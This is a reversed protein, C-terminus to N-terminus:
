RVPYPPVAPINNKWNKLDLLILEIAKDLQQDIGSFELAPDNDVWIDPEM